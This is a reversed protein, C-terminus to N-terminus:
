LQKLAKRMAAILDLVKRDSLGRTDIDPPLRRAHLYLADLPVKLVAALEKFLEESPVLRGTEWGSVTSISFPMGVRKGLRAGLEELSLRARKRAERLYEPLATVDARRLSQSRPGRSM